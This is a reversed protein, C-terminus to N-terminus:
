LGQDTQLAPTARQSKMLIKSFRRPLAHRHDLDIQGFGIRRDRLYIHRAPIERQCEQLNNGSAGIMEIFQKPKGPRRAHPCPIEKEGNLYQATVSKKKLIRKRRAKAVM